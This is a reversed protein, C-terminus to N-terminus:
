WVRPQTCNCDWLVGRLMGRVQSVLAPYGLEAHPRAVTEGRARFTAWQLARASTKPPGNPTAPTASQCGLTCIEHCACCKRLTLHLYISLFFSLLFSLFVSFPLFLFFARFFSLSLFLSLSLCLSLPLASLYISLLFSLFFSLFCSLSFSLCLYVFLYLFFSLVFLSFSLFCALCFSRFFSLFSLSVSLCFSLLALSLDQCLAAGDHGIAVRTRSARWNKM